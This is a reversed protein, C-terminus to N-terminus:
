TRKDITDESFLVYDFLGAAPVQWPVSASMGVENQGSRGTAKLFVRNPIPKQCVSVPDCNDFPQNDTYATIKVNKLDDYLAKIRVRYNENVVIDTFPAPSNPQTEFISRLRKTVKTDDWDLLGTGLDITWPIYAVELWAPSSSPNADLAEVWFSEFGGAAPDEPDYLDLVVSQNKRLFTIQYAENTTTDALTWDSGNPLDAPTYNQLALKLQNLTTGNARAEKITQLGYEVGSEAAYYAIL